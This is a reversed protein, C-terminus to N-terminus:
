ALQEVTVPLGFLRIRGQFVAGRVEVLFELAQAIVVLLEGVFVLLDKSVGVVLRYGRLLAVFALLRRLGLQLVDFVGLVRHRLELPLRARREVLLATAHAVIHEAFNPSRDIGFGSVAAVPQDHVRRRFRGVGCRDDDIGVAFIVQGLRDEILEVGARRHFCRLGRLLLFLLFLLFAHLTFRSRTPLRKLKRETAESTERLAHPSSRGSDGPIRNAFSSDRLAARLDSDRVKAANEGPFWHDGQGLLNYRMKGWEVLDLSKAYTWLRLIELVNIQGPVDVYQPLGEFWRACWDAGLAREMEARLRREIPAMTRQINACTASLDNGALMGRVGDREGDSPSLTDPLVPSPNAHDFCKLAAVHEDFDGPKSAGCSLTHVQPRALCYLANFQMPSLPACLKVLKPPPEYLKGGKDNPSIIFVGMDLQRAAEIASWNLDNVFYWHLNIYDFAGSNVAELIIDTTAHTSFGVFRCRGERQLKRAAAVCGDSKLSWELFQRNNVGHLALLDVYDLRLYKLSTEFTQLFEKATAKPGVKTQVIIKERPLTPLIRGLQM